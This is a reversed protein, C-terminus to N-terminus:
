DEEATSSFFLFFFVDTMDVRINCFKRETGDIMELFSDLESKDLSVRLVVAKMARPSFLVDNVREMNQM